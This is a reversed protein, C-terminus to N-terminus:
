QETVYRLFSDGPLPKAGKWVSAGHARRMRGSQRRGWRRTSPMIEHASRAGPSGNVETKETLPDQSQPVVPSASLARRNPGPSRWLNGSLVNINPPLQYTEAVMGLGMNVGRAASTPRNVPRKMLPTDRRNVVYCISYSTICMVPSLLTKRTRFQLSFGDATSTFSSFLYVMYLVFSRM